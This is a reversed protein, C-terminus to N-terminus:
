ILQLYREKNRLKYIEQFIGPVWLVNKNAKNFKVRVTKLLHIIERDTLAPTRPIGSWCSIRFPRFISQFQVKMVDHSPKCQHHTYLCAKLGRPSSVSRAVFQTNIRVRMSCFSLDCFRSGELVQHPWISEEVCLIQM